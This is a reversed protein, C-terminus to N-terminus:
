GPTQEARNAAQLATSLAGKHTCERFSELGEVFVPWKEGPVKDSVTQLGGQGGQGSPLGAEQVSNPSQTKFANRLNKQKKTKKKMKGIVKIQRKHM